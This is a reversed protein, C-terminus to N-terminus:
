WKISDILYVLGITMFIHWIAHLYFIWYEKYKQDLIRCIAAFLCITIGLIFHNISIVYNYKKFPLILLGISFIMSIRPKMFNCLIIMIYFIILLETFWKYNIFIYLIPLVLTIGDLKIAIDNYSSHAITACILNIIICLKLSINCNINYFLVFLIGILASITNVPEKINYINYLPSRTESMDKGWYHDM